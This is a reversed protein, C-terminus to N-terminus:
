SILYGADAVASIDLTTNSQDWLDKLMTPPYLEDVTTGKQEADHEKLCHVLEAKKGSTPLGRESCLTKLGPEGEESDKLDIGEYPGDNEKLPDEDFDIEVGLSEGVMHDLWYRLDRGQYMEQFKKKVVRVMEPVDCAHTGFADHVPWFSLHEISESLERISTRMHYADLSHVFNPSLGRSLGPKDVRDAEKDAYRQLSYHGHTLLKRIEEADESERDPDAESLIDEILQLPFKPRKKKGMIKTVLDELSVKLESSVRKDKGYLHSARVAIRAKSKGHGHGNWEAKSYWDPVM